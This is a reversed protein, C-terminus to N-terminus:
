LTPMAQADRIIRTEARLGKVKLEGQYEPLASTSIYRVFVLVTVGLVAIVVTTILLIKKLLKM